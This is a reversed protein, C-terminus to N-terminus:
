VLRFDSEITMHIKSDLLASKVLRRTTRALLVATSAWLVPLATSLDQCVGTSEEPANRAHQRNLLTRLHLPPMNPNSAYPKFVRLRDRKIRTSRGLHARSAGLRLHPKDAM